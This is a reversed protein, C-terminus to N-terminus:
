QPLEGSLAGDSKRGIGLVRWRRQCGTDRLGSPRVNDEHLCSGKREAAPGLPKGFTAADYAERRLRIMGNGLVESRLEKSGSIRLNVEVGGSSRKEPCFVRPSLHCTQSISASPACLRCIVRHAFVTQTGTIQRTAFDHECRHLLVIAGNDPQISGRRIWNCRIVKEGPSQHNSVTNRSPRMRAEAEEGSDEAACFERRTQEIGQPRVTRRHIGKTAIM